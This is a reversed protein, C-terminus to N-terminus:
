QDLGFLESLREGPPSLAYSAITVAGKFSDENVVPMYRVSDGIADESYERWLAFPHGHAYGSYLNYVSPVDVKEFLGRVLCTTHPLREDGCVYTRGRKSWAPVALDLRRSYDTVQATTETYQDYAAEPIGDAEAARQGEVASRYRLIQLRKVRGVHGIGPELLWWVQGAVEVLTRALVIVPVATFAGTILAVMARAQELAAQYQMLALGFASRVPEEGWVGEHSSQERAAQLEQMAPSGTAPAVRPDAFVDFTEVVDAHLKACAALAPNDSSM